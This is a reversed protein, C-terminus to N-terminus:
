LRRLGRVPVVNATVGRIPWLASGHWRARGRSARAPDSHRHQETAWEVRLRIGRGRSKALRSGLIGEDSLTQEGAGLKTIDDRFVASPRVAHPVM